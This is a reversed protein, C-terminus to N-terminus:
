KIHILYLIFACAIQYGQEIKCKPIHLENTGHPIFLFDYQTNFCCM